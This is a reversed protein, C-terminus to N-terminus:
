ERAPIPQITPVPPIPAIPPIPPVLGPDFEALPKDADAAAGRTVVGGHRVSSKVDAAGWYTILGGQEIEASLVGQPKVFIRGGSNVSATVNGVAMSRIDITGGQRVAVGIEAQHPFEGRSQITGGEAVAIAALHPTVVEVEFDHGRPCRTPCRDIVLRGDNGLTISSEQPDGKLLTVSQSQGQVLNVHGGNRLEVASFSATLPVGPQMAIPPAAVSLTALLLMLCALPALAVVLVLSSLPLRVRSADLIATVRGHLQSRRVMGVAVPFALSLRRSGGAVGVLFQAYDSPTGGANLVADDCAQEQLKRAQVAAFWV